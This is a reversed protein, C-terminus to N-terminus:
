DTSSRSSLPSAANLPPASASPVGAPRTAVVIAGAYDGDHTLSLATAGFGAARVHEAVAGHLALAVRGSPERRVEICRWDAGAESLGFAKIAAEKAAFRAALRASRAAPSARAWDAEATTFLRQVFRDGFAALSAEIGPIHVLDLGVALGDSPLGALLTHPLANM